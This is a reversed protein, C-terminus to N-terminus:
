SLLLIVFILYSEVLILNVQYQYLRIRLRLINSSLEVLYYLITGQGMFYEIFM